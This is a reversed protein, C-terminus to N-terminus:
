PSNAAEVFFREHLTVRWVGQRELGAYWKTGRPWRYVTVAASM